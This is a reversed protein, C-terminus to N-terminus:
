KKKQEESTRPLKALQDQAENFVSIVEDFPFKWYNSNVNNFFSVIFDILDTKFLKFVHQNRYYIDAVPNEQNPLDGLVTEWGKYKVKYAGFVM